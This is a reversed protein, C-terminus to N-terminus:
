GMLSEVKNFLQKKFGRWSERRYSSNAGIWNGYFVRRFTDPDLDEECSLINLLKGHWEFRGFESQSYFLEM